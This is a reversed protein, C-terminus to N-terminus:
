IAPMTNGGFPSTASRAIVLGVPVPPFTTSAIAFVVSYVTETNLSRLDVLSQMQIAAAMLLLSLVSLGTWVDLSMIYLVTVGVVISEVSPDITEYCNVEM